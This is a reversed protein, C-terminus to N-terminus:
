KRKANVNEIPVYGSCECLWLQRARGIVPVRKVSTLEHGKPCLRKRQKQRPTGARQNKSIPSAM